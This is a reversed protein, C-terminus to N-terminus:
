VENFIKFGESTTEFMKKMVGDRVAGVFNLYFYTKKQMPTSDEAYKFIDKITYIEGDMKKCLRDGPALEKLEKTKTFMKSNSLLKV